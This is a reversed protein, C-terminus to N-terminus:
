IHLCDRLTSRYYVLAITPLDKTDIIANRAFGFKVRGFDYCRRRWTTVVVYHYWKKRLGALRKTVHNRAFFYPLTARVIALPRCHCFIAGANGESQVDSDFSRLIGFSSAGLCCIKWTAEDKRNRSQGSRTTYRIPLLRGTIVSNQMRKWLLWCTFRDFSKPSALTWTLWRWTSM